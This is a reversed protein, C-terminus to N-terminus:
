RSSFDDMRELLVFVVRNPPAQFCSKLFLLKHSFSDDTTFRPVLWWILIKPQILSVSAIVTPIVLSARLKSFHEYVRGEHQGFALKM